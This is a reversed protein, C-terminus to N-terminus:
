VHSKEPAHAQESAPTNETPAGKSRSASSTRRGTGQPTGSAGSAASSTPLAGGWVVTLTGTRGAGGTGGSTTNAADGERLSHLITHLEKIEKILEIGKGTVDVQELGETLADLRSELADLLRSRRAPSTRKPM